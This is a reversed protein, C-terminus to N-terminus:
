RGDTMAALADRLVALHNEACQRGVEIAEKARDFEHLGIHGLPPALVLDPPDEALRSKAIRDQMIYLAASTTTRYSPRDERYERGDAPGEPSEGNLGIIARLRAPLDRAMTGAKWSGRRPMEGNVNVAIVRDAGLAKCLSVPVPNVLGGDALWRGDRRVPDFIGPIAISAHVADFLSGERLWLETGDGIDTAVAGFPIPSAAIEIDALNKRLFRLLKEGRILGGGSFGPDILRLMETWSLSRAWGSLADLRDTVYAAGVLSGMSCGCIMDPRIGNEELTEIVGIHAWGRAAGGGLALGIRGSTGPNTTKGSM